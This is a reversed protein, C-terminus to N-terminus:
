PNGPAQRRPSALAQRNSLILKARHGELFCGLVQKETGRMERRLIRCGQCLGPSDLELDLRAM